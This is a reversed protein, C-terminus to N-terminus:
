QGFVVCRHDADAGFGQTNVMHVAFGDKSEEDAWIIYPVNGQPRWTFNCVVIYPTSPSHVFGYHYIGVEAHDKLTITDSTIKGSQFEFSGIAMSDGKDGKEGRLDTGCATLAILTAAALIGMLAANFVRLRAIISQYSRACRIM